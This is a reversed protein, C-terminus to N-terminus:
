ISPWSHSFSFNVSVRLQISNTILTNIHFKCFVLITSGCIRLFCLARKGTRLMRNGTRKAALYTVYKLFEYALKMDCQYWTNLKSPVHPMWYSTGRFRIWVATSLATASFSQCRSWRRKTPPPPAFRKRFPDPPRPVPQSALLTGNSSIMWQSKLSRVSKILAKNSWLALPSEGFPRSFGTSTAMWNSLNSTTFTRISLHLLVSGDWSVVLVLSAWLTHIRPAVNKRDIMYRERCGNLFRWFFPFSKLNSAKRLCFSLIRM